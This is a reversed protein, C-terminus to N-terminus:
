PNLWAPPYGAWPRPGLARILENSEHLVADIRAVVQPDVDLDPERRNPLPVAAMRAMVPKAMPALRRHLGGPLIRGIREAGGHVLAPMASTTRRAANAREASATMALGTWSRLAEITARDDLTEAAVVRTRDGLPGDLLRQLYPGYRTTGLYRRSLDRGARDTTVMPQDLEAILAQQLPRKEFGQMFQDLYLSRIRSWPERISVLLHTATGLREIRELARTDYIYYPTADIRPGSVATPYYGRYASVIDGVKDDDLLLVSPEKVTASVAGADVLRRHLTTSGTKPFGLVFLSPLDTAASRTPTIQETGM